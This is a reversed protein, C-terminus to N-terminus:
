GLDLAARWRMRGIRESWGWVSEEGREECRTAAHNGGRGHARHFGALDDEGLVLQDARVVVTMRRRLEEGDVQRGVLWM